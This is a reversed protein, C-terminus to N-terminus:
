FGLKQEAKPYITNDYKFLQFHLPWLSFLKKENQKTQRTKTMLDVVMIIFKKM